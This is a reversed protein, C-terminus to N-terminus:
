YMCVELSRGVFPITIFKSITFQFLRLAMSTNRDSNSLTFSNGVSASGGIDALSTLFSEVRFLPFTEVRYSLEAFAPAVGFAFDSAPLSFSNAVDLPQSDCCFRVTQGTCKQASPTSSIDIADSITFTLGNQRLILLTSVMLDTGFITNTPNGVYCYQVSSVTGSCNLTPPISFVQLFGALTLNGTGLRAVNEDDESSGFGLDPLTFRNQAADLPSCSWQYLSQANVGLHTAFV